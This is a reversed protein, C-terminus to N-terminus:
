FIYSPFTPSEGSHRSAKVAIVSGAGFVSINNSSRCRKGCTLCQELFIHDTRLPALALQVASCACDHTCKTLSLLVIVPTIRGRLSSPPPPVSSPRGQCCSPGGGEACCLGVALSRWIRVASTSSCPRWGWCESLGRLGGRRQQMIARVVIELDAVVRPVHRPCEYPCRCIACSRGACQACTRHLNSKAVFSGSTLSNRCSKFASL